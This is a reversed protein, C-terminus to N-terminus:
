SFPVTEVGSVIRGASTNNLNFSIFSPQKNYGFMDFDQAYLNILEAIYQQPVDSYAEKLATEKQHKLKDMDQSQKRARELVEVFDDASMAESETANLPFDIDEDVIGRIRMKDWLRQCLEHKSVCTKLNEYFAFASYTSDLIADSTVDAKLSTLSLKKVTVNLLSTLYQFDFQLTEMHGILTFDVDCPACLAQVPKM